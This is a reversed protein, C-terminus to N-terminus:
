RGVGKIITFTDRQAGQDDVFTADLRHFNIDIVLSGLTNLSIFMAPHNLKGGSTQGSSGAVAYVTGEHPAPAATPKFYPGHGRVRGDGANKRMSPRLADSGLARRSSLPEYNHSHGSLVLDIGGAEIISSM